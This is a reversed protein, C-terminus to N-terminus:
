VRATLRQKPEGELTLKFRLGRLYSELEAREVSKSIVISLETESNEVVQSIAQILKEVRAVEAEIAPNEVSAQPAPVAAPVAAARKAQELERRLEDLESTLEAPANNQSHALQQEYESASDALRQQARNREAILKAREADWQGTLEARGREVAAAIQRELAIAAAEDVEALARDHEQRSQELLRNAHECDAVLRAREAEWDGVTQRLRELEQNLQHREAILENRTTEVASAMQQSFREQLEHGVVARTNQEAEEIALKLRESSEQELSAERQEVTRLVQEQFESDLVQLDNMTQDLLRALAAVTQSLRETARLAPKTIVTEM